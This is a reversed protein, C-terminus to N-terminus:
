ATTEKEEFKFSSACLFKIYGKILQKFNIKCGDIQKISAFIKSFKVLLTDCIFM